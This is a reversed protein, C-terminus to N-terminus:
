LEHKCKPFVIKLMDKRIPVRLKQSCSPCDVLSKVIKNKGSLFESDWLECSKRVMNNTLYGTFWSEDSDSINMLKGMGLVVSLLDTMQESYEKNGRDKDTSIFKINNTDSYVHTIEHSLINLLKEKEELFNPNLYITYFMQSGMPLPYTTGMINIENKPDSLTKEKNLREWTLKIPTNHLNLFSKLYKLVDKVSGAEDITVMEEQGTKNEHVIHLKVKVLM